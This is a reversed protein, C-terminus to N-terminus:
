ETHALQRISDFRIPWLSVSCVAAPAATPPMAAPLPSASPLALWGALWGALLSIAFQMWRVSM